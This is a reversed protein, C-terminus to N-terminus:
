SQLDEELLYINPEGVVGAATMASKVDMTDFFKMLRSLDEWQFVISVDNPDNVNRFINYEKEGFVKRFTDSMVFRSKWKEYDKVEHQVILNAMQNREYTKNNIIMDWNRFCDWM